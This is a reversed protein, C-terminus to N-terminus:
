PVSQLVPSFRLNKVCTVIGLETWKKKNEKQNRLAHFDGWFEKEKM